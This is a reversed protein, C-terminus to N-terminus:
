RLLRSGPDKVSMIWTLPKHDSLVKFKRGYLYPRFYKIGWVIVALEKGVTSCNREATNFTHSAFAIPLGKGVEGQSLVAGVGENSTDTTIIFERSFDPYQM